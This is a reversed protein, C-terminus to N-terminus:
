PIGFGINEGVSLHPFLSSDQPVWGIGRREPAVNLNASSMVRGGLSISGESVPLLGAISRLLTTKGCGSPGLIAVIEGQPITVDIGDLVTHRGYNVRVGEVTVWSM